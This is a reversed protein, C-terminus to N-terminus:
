PQQGLHELAQAAQQRVDRDSANEAQRLEKIAEDYVRQKLLARGLFLHALSFDAKARIAQRYSHIAERLDGQEELLEGLVQYPMPLSPNIILAQGVQERADALRGLTSLVRAFQCRAQVNEPTLALATEFYFAAEKFDGRLHLVNALNVRADSLDPQIRLESRFELEAAAADGSDLLARGLTQHASPLDPDLALSRRLAAIAEAKSGAALTIAGMSYQIRSDDPWLRIARRMESRADELDGSALLADALRKRMWGSDSDRKVAQEYAPVAAASMGAERLAEGLSFYFEAQTPKELEIESKLRQIGPRLNAGNAVQAVAVYLRSEATDPMPNPYYPVVEGHYASQSAEHVEPLEALLDRSPVRAQIRHDTMVVHVVDNTRRKPMHCDICNNASTHNEAGVMERLKSAHCRQCVSNYHGTEQSHLASHPDHCTLCTLRDKSHIWCQSQRLRHASDVIGFGEEDHGPAKDFNILFEGLPEAARYSFPGRDFRRIASPLRSSTTELHCQMCIEM